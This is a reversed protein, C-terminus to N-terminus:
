ICMLIHLYIAWPKFYGLEGEILIKYPNYEDKSVSM